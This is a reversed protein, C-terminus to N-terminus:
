GDDREQERQRQAERYAAAVSRCRQRWSAATSAVIEADIHPHYYFGALGLPASPPTPKGSDEPFNRDLWSDWEQLASM